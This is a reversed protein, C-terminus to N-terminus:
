RTEADPALSSTPPSSSGDKLGGATSVAAIATAGSVAAAVAPSNKAAYEKAYSMIKKTAIMFAPMTLNDIAGPDDFLGRFITIAKSEAVTSKDGALADLAALQGVTPSKTAYLKGGIRLKLDWPLLVSLAIDVDFEM